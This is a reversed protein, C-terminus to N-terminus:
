RAAPQEEQRAQTSARHVENRGPADARRVPISALWSGVSLPAELLSRPQRVERVYARQGRLGRAGRQRFAQVWV